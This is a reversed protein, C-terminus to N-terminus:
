EGEGLPSRVANKCEGDRIVAKKYSKHSYALQGAYGNM